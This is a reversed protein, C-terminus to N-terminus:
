AWPYHKSKDLADGLRIAKSGLEVSQYAAVLVEVALRGHIALSNDTSNILASFVNGSTIVVDVPQINKKANIAPMGYRSTPLDRYWPERESLFLDGTLENVILVGYRGCYTVFVGHGQDYGTELYFRKGSRTSIRVSGARDSYSKGRPNELEGGSFWAIVEYPDEDTMFRFAEFYHSGNMSVGFNGAVVTM